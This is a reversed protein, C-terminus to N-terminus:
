WEEEEEEVVKKAKAKGKPAAKSKPSTKAKPTAKSAKAEKPDKLVQRYILRTITNNNVKTDTIVCSVNRLYVKDKRKVVIKGEKVDKVYQAYGLVKKLTADLLYYGKNDPDRLDRGEENLYAWYEKKEPLDEDLNRYLYVHIASNLDIPSIKENKDLQLFELVAPTFKCPKSLGSNPNARKKKPSKIHLVKRAQSLSATTKKKLLILPRPITEAKKKKSDIYDVMLKELEELSTMLTQKTPRLRLKKGEEEEPDPDGEEEEAYTVETDDDYTEEEFDEEDYNEEELEEEFVKKKPNKTKSM